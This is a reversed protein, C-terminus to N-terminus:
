KDRFFDDLERMKHNRYWNAYLQAKKRGIRATMQDLCRGTYVDINTCRRAEEDTIEHRETFGTEPERVELCILAGEKPPLIKIEFGSDRVYNLFDFM